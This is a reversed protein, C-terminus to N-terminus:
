DTIVGKLQYKYYSVGPGYVWGVKGDALQIKVWPATPTIDGLDITYLSDTVEGMFTVETYLPLRALVGNKLSPGSRVNLGNITSYLPTVKQVVVESAPIRVVSDGPLPQTRARLLAQARAEAEADIEANRQAADEVRRISDLYNERAEAEAVMAYERNGSDCQKMAWFLFILTVLSMLIFPVLRANNTKKTAM